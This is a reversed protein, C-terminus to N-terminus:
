LKEKIIFTSTSQKPIIVGSEDFDYGLEDMIWNMALNVDDETPEHEDRHEQIDASWQHVAEWVVELSESISFNTPKSM